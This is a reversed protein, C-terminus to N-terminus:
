LTLYTHEDAFKINKWINKMDFVIGQPQLKNKITELNMAKYPEHAVLPVIADYKEENNLSSLLQIKYEEMVEHECAFPDHVEVEYGYDKLGNIVDIAKTNRIDNINEKFTFGLVLIKRNEKKNVHRMNADISQAVYLGMRDNIKRGSLIVEPTHGVKLACQALYYPDVSICHGGVLGPTFPLFNWKTSAAELVDHASLGMKNVIMTIENIFAVNIDRQANEIAKSAEATMINKAKFVRGNTVLAYLNYLINATEETQGSVVKTINEVTHEKDGPNIREPSYGLFFDIGSKLGSEKEILQGCFEETIGPYVTSEYVIIDGQKVLQAIAKTAAELPTLDPNNNSDVPTPVTIIFINCDSIDNISDTFRCATTRLTEAAIEANTDVGNTLQAVRNANIDFGITSVYQSLRVALPMGVYGLGIVAIKKNKINSNM